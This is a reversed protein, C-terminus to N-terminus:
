AQTPSVDLWFLQLLSAITVGVENPNEGKVNREVDRTAQEILVQFRSVFREQQYLTTAINELPVSGKLHNASLALTIYYFSKNRLLLSLLWGRGGDVLSPKYIPYQMLFVADLYHM